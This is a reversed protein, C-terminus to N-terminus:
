CMKTTRKNLKGGKKLKGGFKFFGAAKLKQYQDPNTLKLKEGLRGLVGSDGYASNILLARDKDLGIMNNERGQQLLKTSLNSVNESTLQQQKNNFETGMLRQNNVRDTNRAQKQTNLFAENGQIGANIHQTQGMLDNKARLKKALTSGLASTLAGAQGINRTLLANVQNTDQDIGALQAAPDVRDLKTPSEQQVGPPGQLRKQLLSNLINPAYTAAQTIGKNWDFGQQEPADPQQVADAQPGRSQIEGLRKKLLADAGFPDNGLELRPKMRGGYAFGDTAIAQQKKPAVPTATGGPQLSKYLALRYDQPEQYQPFDFKSGLFSLDQSYQQQPTLKSFSGTGTDKNQNEYDYRMKEDMMEKARSIYFQNHKYADGFKPDDDKKLPIGPGVEGGEALKEKHKWLPTYKLAPPGNFLFGGEQFDAKEYKAHAMRKGSRVSMAQELINSQSLNKNSIYKSVDPLLSSQNYNDTRPGGVHGGGIRGGFAKKQLQKKIFASRTSDVYNMEKQQAEKTWHFDGNPLNGFGKSSAAHEAAKEPSDFGGSVWAFEARTQPDSDLLARLDVADQGEYPQYGYPYNTPLPGKPAPRKQLSVKTADQKVLPDGPGNLSGGFAHHWKKANKAFNAMKRVHADSSHLAEETTKGTRKKYATFKGKNEPKIHISGGSKFSIQDPNDPNTETNTFNNSNANKKIKGGKKMSEQYNFLEDLKRDILGNSTKFRTEYDEAKQKELKKAAKAISKGNPLFVSDSFVRNQRDIVENDDVFADKLEVSDTQNPNNANVEVADDSIANLTGGGQAQLQKALLRGGHKRMAKGANNVLFQDQAAKQRDQAHHMETDAQNAGIASSIGGLLAGGLMGIPGFAAGAGLGELAGSVGQGVTSTQGAAAGVASGLLNGARGIANSNQKLTDGLSLKPKKKGKRNRPM